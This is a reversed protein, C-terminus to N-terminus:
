DHGNIIFCLSARTGKSVSYHDLLTKAVIGQLLDNSADTALSIAGQLNGDDFAKWAFRDLAQRCLKRASPYKRSVSVLSDPDLGNIIRTVLTDDNILLAYSASLTLLDANQAGIWETYKAVYFSAGALLEPIQVLPAFHTVFLPMWEIMSCGAFLSESVASSDFCLLKWYIQDVTKSSVDITAVHLGLEEYDFPVQGYILDALLREMWTLSIRVSGVQGQLIAALDHVHAGFEISEDQFCQANEMIWHDFIGPDDMVASPTPAQLMRELLIEIAEREGNHGELLLQRLLLCALEFNRIAVLRVIAEWFEDPVITFGKQSLVEIWRSEDVSHHQCWRLLQHVFEVPEIQPAQLLCLSSLSWLAELESM